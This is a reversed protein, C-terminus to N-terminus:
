VSISIRVRVKSFKLFFKVLACISVLHYHCLLRCSLGSLQLPMCDTVNASQAMNLLRQGSSTM